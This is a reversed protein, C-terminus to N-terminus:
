AGFVERNLDEKTPWEETLNLISDVDVEKIAVLSFDHSYEEIKAELAEMDEDMLFNYYGKGHYDPYRTTMKAVNIM